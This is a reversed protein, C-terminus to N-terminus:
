VRSTGTLVPCGGGRLITARIGLRTAPGAPGTMPFLAPRDQVAAPDARGPRRESDPM